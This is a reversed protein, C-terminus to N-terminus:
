SVFDSTMSSRTYGLLLKDRLCGDFGSHVMPISKVELIQATGELTKKVKEIMKKVLNLTAPPLLASTKNCEKSHNGDLLRRETRRVVESPMTLRQTGSRKKPSSVIKLDDFTSLTSRKLM